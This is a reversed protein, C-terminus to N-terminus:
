LIQPPLSTAQSKSFVDKLDRYCDPVGLLDPNDAEEHTEQHGNDFILTVPSTQHTDM